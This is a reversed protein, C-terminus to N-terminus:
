VPVEAVAVASRVAGVGELTIKFEKGRMNLTVRGNASPIKRTSRGNNVHLILGDDCDIEIYKLLKRGRYGFNIEPTEVSYNYSGNQYYLRYIKSPTYALVGVSDQAILYAPIDLFQCCDRLRDYVYVVDSKFSRSTGAFFIFRDGHAFVSTVKILDETVAGEVRTVSGGRYRMLGASTFFLISDGAILQANRTVPPVSITEKVRFNETDGWAAFRVICYQRFIVLEDGFDVVNLIVGGPPELTLKGSDSNASSWDAYSKVGSWKLTYGDGDAAGFLRGNRMAGCSLRGSLRDHISIGDRFATYYSGSVLVINLERDYTEFFFPSDGGDSYIRELTVGDNGRYVEGTDTAAYFRGTIDWWRGAALKFNLSSTLENQTWGPTLEGDKVFAGRPLIGPLQLLNVSVDKCQRYRGM